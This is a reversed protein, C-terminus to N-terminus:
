VHARGIKHRVLDALLAQTHAIRCALMRKLGAILLEVQDSAVKDRGGVLLAEVHHTVRVRRDSTGAQFLSKAVAEDWWRLKIASAGGGLLPHPQALDSSCVDSSWDGQLRTHRRRSSFFFM